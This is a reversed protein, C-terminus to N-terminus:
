GYARMSRKMSVGDQSAMRCVREPAVEGLETLDAVAGDHAVVKCPTRAAKGKEVKDIGLRDVRDHDALVIEIALHHTDGM